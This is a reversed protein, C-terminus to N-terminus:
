DSITDKRNRFFRYSEFFNSWIAEVM